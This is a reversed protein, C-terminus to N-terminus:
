TLAMMMQIKELFLSRRIPLLFFMEEWEKSKPDILDRAERFMAQPSSLRATALFHQDEKKGLNALMKKYHKSVFVEEGDEMYPFSEQVMSGECLILGKFSDQDQFKRALDLAIRGGMSHAYIIFEDLDLSRIIKEVYSSHSRPLYDFDLPRDSYGGGLLDILIRRHESLGPQSSCQIFDFSGACGWGPIFVIAPKKGPLDNYRVYLDQGNINLKIEEM